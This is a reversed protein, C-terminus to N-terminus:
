PVGRLLVHWSAFRPWADRRAGIGGNVDGPWRRAEMNVVTGSRGVGLPSGKAAEDRMGTAIRSRCTLLGAGGAEHRRVAEGDRRCACFARRSSTELVAVGSGRM